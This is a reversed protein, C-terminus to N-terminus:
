ELKEKQVQDHYWSILMRVVDTNSELGWRKKITLFKQAMEGELNISIRLIKEEACMKVVSITDNYTL